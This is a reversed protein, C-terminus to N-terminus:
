EHLRLCILHNGNSKVGFSVHKQILAVSRVNSGYRQSSTGKKPCGMSQGEAVATHITRLQKPTYPTPLSLEWTARRRM